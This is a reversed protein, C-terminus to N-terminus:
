KININTKGKKESKLKKLKIELVGNNYTADTMKEDVSAPLKITKHFKGSETDVSITLNDNDVDAHIDSKEVGPLEVIVMLNEGHDVVDVLPERDDIIGKSMPKVNGFENIIPKGDPGTRMSFGYVIPNGEFKGEFMREDFGRFANRMMDNMMEDIRSFFDFPDDDDDRSKKKKWDM